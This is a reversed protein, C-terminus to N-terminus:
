NAHIPLEHAWGKGVGGVSDCCDEDEATPPGGVSSHIRILTTPLLSSPVGSLNFFSSSIRCLFVSCPSATIVEEASARRFQQRDGEMEGRERRGWEGRRDQLSIRATVLLKGTDFWVIGISKNVNSESQWAHICSARLIYVYPMIGMFCFLYSTCVLPM